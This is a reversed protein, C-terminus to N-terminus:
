APPHPMGKMLERRIALGIKGTQYPKKVYAGAGLEQAKKVRETESFGSVLIAKQKPNIELIRQYTELGDMGPYMIMDLVLLDVPHSAVFGVAEEGGSATHVRYGLSKLIMAAMDRQDPVDDVVLIFEGLGRYEEVVINQKTETREERTVPFYLDFTSGRGSESRVDIYGNHDKVAGWIIALGLGTGSRGMVKKTYFPEFIRELDVAEIGIGNDSVTLLVYDGEQIADYTRIAKDLYRNETRITVEGAGCIAEAANAILNMVTKELHLPSGKINLLDGDLETKFTVQPHHAQIKEFVPTNLFNTMVHNLNVVESVSVSRRALTLLDEIIAAGEETSQLIKDIYRRLPDEKPIKMLLMETYGMLVGLVNNLDHAVGGALTGLAEMKEARHLRDELKVREEEMRKSDTIDIFTSIFNPEGDLEIMEASYRCLVRGGSKTNFWFEQDRCRGEEKLLLVVRNRDEPHAWLKLELAQRGLMEDAGYGLLKQLEENVEIINGSVMNSVAICVPSAHFTKSFKERSKKLAVEAQERETIDMTFGALFRSKGDLIIPFKITSYVRGGYEEIVERSRQERLIRLDDEVMKKALDSPFLDDATKGILEDIPKGLMTEYNKSLRLSRTKDDKFFVYIPSHHLFQSFIEENQKRETIDEFTGIVGSISGDSFFLPSFNASMHVFVNGTVTLYGGEFRSKEGTLARAIADKMRKDRISTYSFGILKEKPAGFLKSANNNCTTISGHEDTCMIALPSYEFIAQFKKEDGATTQNASAYETKESLLRDHSKKLEAINQELEKAQRHLAEHTPKNVM